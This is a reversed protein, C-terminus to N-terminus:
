DLVVTAEDPVAHGCAFHYVVQGQSPPVELYQHVADDYFAGIGTSRLGLAEAALYLRQGIAGAEFHVYRYGRDGHARFARELDGVMSFAVCANGALDQGLSLAAAWLRQDGGRLPELAGSEPWYRYLGPALKKVAHVFVYLQIYRSSARDWLDGEFDAHFPRYAVDLLTSLQELEMSAGAAFDLASRRQRAVNGFPATPRAPQPLRLSGAGPQPPEARAIAGSDRGLKSARHVAEIAPYPVVRTSIVSPVGGFWAGPTPAKRETPIASGCLCVVLLPWEDELGLLEAVADDPFHGFTKAELGAARAALALAQWAHGMDLLCYRYARERYKWAERWVITTLVFVAPVPGFVHAGTQQTLAEVYDGTARQEAEHTLVRYHYLGDGWGALGRTAFHFETPHLNGSSPNVRLFYREGTRGARRAASIAASHRLIQSILTAGDTNAVRGRCGRLIDFAPAELSPPSAPLPFVPVGEYRRFPDPANTWDLTHRRSRLREPTHKTSEHYHRFPPVSVADKPARPGCGQNM